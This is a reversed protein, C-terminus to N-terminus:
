SNKFIYIVNAVISHMICFTIDLAKQVNRFDIIKYVYLIFLLILQM